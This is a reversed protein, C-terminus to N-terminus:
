NFRYMRAASPSAMIITGKEDARMYADQINEIISRFREESVKLENYTQLLKDEQQHLEKNTVQLEETTSQLEENSEKLKNQAIVRDTVDHVISYLLKKGGLVITGSYVDVDRLEGSALQHKFLFNNQQSSVSKQM